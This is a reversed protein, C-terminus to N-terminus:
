LIFYQGTKQWTFFTQNINNDKVSKIFVNDPIAVVTYDNAWYLTLLITWGCHMGITIKIM